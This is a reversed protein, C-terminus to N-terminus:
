EDYTVRNNLSYDGVEDPNNWYTFGKDFISCIKKSDENNLKANINCGITKVFTWHTRARYNPVKASRVAYGYKEFYDDILKLIELRYSQKYFVFGMQNVGPLINASKIDGFSKNALRRSKYVDQGIQTCGGAAGTIAGAVAGAAMGYPGFYAGMMAGTGAGTVMGSLAAYVDPGLNQAWFAKFADGSWACVPYEDFTLGDIINYVQTYLTTTGDSWIPARPNSMGKYGVPVIMSCPKWAVTTICKFNGRHEADFLEWKYETEKGANNTALIRYYPYSYLKKNKPKWTSNEGGLTIGFETPKGSVYVDEELASVKYIDMGPVSQSHDTIKAAMESSIMFMSIISEQKNDGYYSEMFKQCRDLETFDTGFIHIDIAGYVMCSFGNAAPKWEGGADKSESTLICIKNPIIQHMSVSNNVYDGGLEVEEPVLHEFLKDTLSHEREVYCEEIQYDLGPGRLWTQMVDIEYNIQVCDNNIYEVGLIFAYFWKDGFATNQFMLYNCDYLNEPKTNLKIYGRGVRQYYQHEFNLARWAIGDKVFKTKGKFWKAQVERINATLPWAITHEYTNDLPVGTLIRIESNPAIYM